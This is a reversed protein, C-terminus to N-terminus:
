GLQIDKTNQEKTNELKIVEMNRGIETPSRLILKIQENLTKDKKKLCNIQHYM